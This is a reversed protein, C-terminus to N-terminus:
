MEISYICVQDLELGGGEGQNHHYHADTHTIIIDTAPAGGGGDDCLNWHQSLKWGENDLKILFLIENM